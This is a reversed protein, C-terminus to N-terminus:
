SEILIIKFLGVDGDNTSTTYLTNNINYQPHQPGHLEDSLIQINELAHLLPVNNPHEMALFQDVKKIAQPEIAVEAGGINITNTHGVNGVSGFTILRTILVKTVLFNVNQAEQFPEFKSRGL